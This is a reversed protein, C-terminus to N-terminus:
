NKRICVGSCWVKNYSCTLQKHILMIRTRKELNSLHVQKEVKRVCCCSYCPLWKADFLMLYSHVNSCIAVKQSKMHIWKGGHCCLAGRSWGQCSAMQHGVATSGGWQLGLTVKPWSAPKSCWCIGVPFWPYNATPPSSAKQVLIHASNKQIQFSTLCSGVRAM